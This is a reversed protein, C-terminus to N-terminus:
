LSVSTLNQENSFFFTENFKRIFNLPIKTINSQCKTKKQQPPHHGLFRHHKLFLVSFNGNEIDSM